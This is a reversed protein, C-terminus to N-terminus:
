ILPLEASDFSGPTPGPRRPSPTPSSGGTNDDELDWLDDEENETYYEGYYYEGCYEIVTQKLEYLHLQLEAYYEDICRQDDQMLNDRLYKILTKIRQSHERAFEMGFDLAVERIRREAQLILAEAPIRKDM